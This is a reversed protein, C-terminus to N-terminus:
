TIHLAHMYMCDNDVITVTANPTTIIVANTNSDRLLVVITENSEILLDDIIPVQICDMRPRTNGFQYMEQLNINYDISDPLSSVM